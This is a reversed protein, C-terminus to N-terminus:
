TMSEEVEDWATHRTVRHEAAWDLTLMALPKQGPKVLFADSCKSAEESGLIIVLNKVGERHLGMIFTICGSEKDPHHLIRQWLGCSLALNKVQVIRQIAISGICKVKDPWFDDYLPHADWFTASNLKSYKQEGM